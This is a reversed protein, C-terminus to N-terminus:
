CSELEAPVRGARRGGEKGATGPPFVGTEVSGVQIFLCCEFALYFRSLFVSNTGAKM